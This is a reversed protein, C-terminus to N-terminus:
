GIYELDCNRVRLIYSFIVGTDLRPRELVDDLYEKPLNAQHPDFIKFKQSHNEYDLKLQKQQEESSAIISLKLLQLLEIKKGTMNLDKM